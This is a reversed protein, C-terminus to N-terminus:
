SLRCMECVDISVGIPEFKLGNVKYTKNNHMYPNESKWLIFKWDWTYLSSYELIRCMYFRM